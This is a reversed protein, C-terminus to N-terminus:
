SSAEYHLLHETVRLCEKSILSGECFTEKLAIHAPSVRVRSVCMCLVYGTKQEFSLTPASTLSLKIPYYLSLYSEM